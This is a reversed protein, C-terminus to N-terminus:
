LKQYVNERINLRLKEAYEKRIEPESMVIETAYFNDNEYRPIVHTHYHFVDQGGAPENHQRITIGQCDYAKKMVITLYRVFDNVREFDGTSIDYINEVHVKPVILVHGKNNPWGHSAVFAIIFEDRYIVDAQRTYPFKKEEEGKIVACFPCQYDAPAHNFM